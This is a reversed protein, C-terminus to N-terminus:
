QVSHCFVLWRMYKYMYITLLAGVHLLCCNIRVTRYMCVSWQMGIVQVGHLLILKRYRRRCLVKIWTAIASHFSAWPIHHHNYSPLFHPCGQYILPLEDKDITSDHYHQECLSGQHRAPRKCDPETCSSPEQRRDRDLNRLRQNLACQKNDGKKSESRRECPSSGTIFFADFRPLIM